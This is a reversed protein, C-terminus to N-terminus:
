MISVFSHERVGQLYPKGSIGKEFHLLSIVIILRELASFIHLPKMNEGGAINLDWSRLSPYTHAESLKNSSRLTTSPGRWLWIKMWLIHISAPNLIPVM